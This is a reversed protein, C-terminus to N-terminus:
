EIIVISGDPLIRGSEGKENTIVDGVKYTKEGIKVPTYGYVSIGNAVSRTQLRDNMIKEFNNIKSQTDVGLVWAVEGIRGPLYDEYFAQEDETLAAGTQMRAIDDVIAKRLGLYEIQAESGFIKGLTGSIIGQMRKTDLEKLRKTNQIINYLATFDEQQPSSLKSDKVGTKTNVITGSSRSMEKAGQAVIGFTGKPLGTPIMGTAAYQQQYALINSPDETIGQNTLEKELKQIQLIQQKINLARTPDKINLFDEFSLNKLEPANEKLALWEGVAGPATKEAIQFSRITDSFDKISGEVGSMRASRYIENIDKIGSALADSTFDSVGQMRKEDGAKKVGEQIKTIDELTTDPFETRAIEMIKNLDKEGSEIIQLLASDKASKIYPAMAKAKTDRQKEEEEQQKQGLQIIQLANNFEQQQEQRQAQVRNEIMSALEFDFNTLAAQKQEELVQIQKKNKDDMFSLFAQASSSFRRRTGLQGEAARIEQEGLGKVDSIRREFGTELVGRSPDFQERTRAAIAERDESSVAAGSSVIGEARTVADVGIGGQNGLDPRDPLTLDFNYPKLFEFKQGGERPSIIGQKTLANIDRGELESTPVIAGKIAKSIAL